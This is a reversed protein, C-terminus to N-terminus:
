TYMDHWHLLLSIAGTTGSGSFFVLDEEQIGNVCSLIMENAQKRYKSTQLGTYSADTHTNAYITM